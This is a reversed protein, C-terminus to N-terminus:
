LRERRLIFRTRVPLSANTWGEAEPTIVASMVQDSVLEWGDEGLHNLTAQWDDGDPVGDSAGPLYVFTVSKWMQSPRKAAPIKSIESWNTRYCSVVVAYEFKKM